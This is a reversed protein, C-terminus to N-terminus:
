WRSQLPRQRQTDLVQVRLMSLSTVVLPDRLLRKIPQAM